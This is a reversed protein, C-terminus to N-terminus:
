AVGANVNMGKRELLEEIDDLVAEDGECHFIGYGAEIYDLIKYEEFTSLIKEISMNWKESAPRILRTQMFIIQSKESM